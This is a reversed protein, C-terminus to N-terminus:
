QPINYFSANLYAVVDDVERETMKPNYSDNWREVEDHLAALTAIKRQPPVYLETGHCSLCDRHLLEGRVPDGKTPGGAGSCAALLLSVAALIQPRIM